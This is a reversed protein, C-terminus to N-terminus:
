AWEVLLLDQYQQALTGVALRTTVAERGDDDPDPSMIGAAQLIGSLVVKGPELKDRAWSTVPLELITTDVLERARVTFPTGMKFSNDGEPEERALAAVRAYPVVGEAGAFTMDVGPFRFIGYADSFPEDGMQRLRRGM